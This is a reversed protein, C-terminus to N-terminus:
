NSLNICCCLIDQMNEPLSKNLDEENYFFEQKSNEETENENIKKDENNKESKFLKGMLFYGILTSGIIIIPDLLAKLYYLKM